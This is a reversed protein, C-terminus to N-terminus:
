SDNWGQLKSYLEGASIDEKNNVNNINNVNKVEEEIDMNDSEM